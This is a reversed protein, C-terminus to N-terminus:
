AAKMEDEDTQQMEVEVGRCVVAVAVVVMEEVRNL